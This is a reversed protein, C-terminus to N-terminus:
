HIDIVVTKFVAETSPVLLGLGRYVFRNRMGALGGRFDGDVVRHRFVDIDGAMHGDDAPGVVRRHFCCKGIVWFVATVTFALLFIIVVISM